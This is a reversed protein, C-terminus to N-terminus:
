KVSSIFKVFYPFKLFYYYVIFYSILKQLIYFMWQNSNGNWGVICHYYYMQLALTKFKWYNAVTHLRLIILAMGPFLFYYNSHLRCAEFHGRWGCIEYTGECGDPWPATCITSTGRFFFTLASLRLCDSLERLNSFLM